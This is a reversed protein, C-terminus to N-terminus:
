PTEKVTAAIVAGIAHHAQADLHIGDVPDIQAVTNLDVFGAGNRTALARLLEPMQASKAAAGKFIDTFVGIEQVQVGAVVVVAPATGDTGCDSRGIETVLRGVGLAIDHASLNFRAKLDNTGLMVVVVDLPRHSELMAQLYRLGNKHAGEIPDDHVATRGPHGESIVHWGAGLVGAMVTPWRDEYTHRRRDDITRFAKTGHTNSDGFCLVCRESM